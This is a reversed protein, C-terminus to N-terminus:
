YFNGTIDTSKSQGPESESPKALKKYLASTLLPLALSAIVAGTKKHGTKQLVAGIILSSVGACALHTASIKSTKNEPVIGHLLPNIFNLDDM